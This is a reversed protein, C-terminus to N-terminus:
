EEIHKTLFQSIIHVVKCETETVDRDTALIMVMGIPDGGVVITDAVVKAHETMGKSIEITMPTTISLISERNEMCAELTSSVVQNLYKKKMPGAAAIVNDRDFILINSGLSEYVSDVLLKAFDDLDSIPSYKKLAVMDKDVFIELSEGDHIRLNKRIEKHVVIRGLGDIRRVVGTTKM